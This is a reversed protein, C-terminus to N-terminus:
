PISLVMGPKLADSNLKNKAKIAEVTVKYKKSIKWLSEGDEVQHKKSSAKEEKKPAPPAPPPPAEQVLYLQLVKNPSDSKLATKFLQWDGELLIKSVERTTMGRSAFLKEVARFQPTMEFAYLMEEDASKKLRNFLGEATFPYRETAAFATIGRWQQLSLNPYIVVDHTKGEANLSLIQELAPKPLGQLARQLDFDYLSVMVGLALDRVQYDEVLTEDHLYDSLVEFTLTELKLLSELLHPETELALRSYVIPKIKDWPIHPRENVMLFLFFGLLVINLAGSVLLGQSLYLTSKTEARM